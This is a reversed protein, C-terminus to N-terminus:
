QEIVPTPTLGLQEPPTGADPHADTVVGTPTQEDLGLAAATKPLTLRARLAALVKKAEKEPLGSLSAWCADTAADITRAVAVAEAQKPTVIQVDYVTKAPDLRSPRAVLEV